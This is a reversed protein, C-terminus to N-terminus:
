SDGKQIPMAKWFYKRFSRLEDFAKIRFVMRMSHGVEMEGDQVNAFEAVMRGGGEFDVTGYYVPPDPSYALRDATFSLVKATRESFPYDEQTGSARSSSGVSIETKPFQVVGTETCKGGILGLVTKRSRSLTTGPQKEDLEARIGKDIDLLGRHFLYRPYNDDAVGALDYAQQRQQVAKLHTTTEFLIVDAGQGFNALLIKEGPKAKQLTKALMLWPHVVGTDGISAMQTDAVVEPSIGAASALKQPVGRVSAAIVAHDIHEGAVDLKILTDKIAAGLIKQYGEDRIFRPEWAYDFDVGTERYHDVFDISTSHSGLCTAIVDGAGTLFAVAADGYNMEQPSAVKAKRRDAALNLQLREHQMADLLLTSAARLSGTRDSAVINDSLNLAEKAIGANSRDAFPLSTSALSLAQVSSRDMGDLCYRGAEVGMTIPDEDWGSIAKEGKALGGLGPAFWQNSQHIASRQLRRQPVYMGYSLIGSKLTM